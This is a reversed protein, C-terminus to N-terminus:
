TPVLPPSWAPTRLRQVGGDRREELQQLRLGVRLRSSHVDDVGTTDGLGTRAPSKARPNSGHSRASCTTSRDEKAGEDDRYVTLHWPIPNVATANMAINVLYILM